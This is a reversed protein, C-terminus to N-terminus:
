FYILTYQVVSQMFLIMCSNSQSPDWMLSMFSHPRVFLFSSACLPILVCMFSYPRVNLFSSACLPIFICMFFHPRAFLFSSACLPILSRLSSNPRMNLSHPRVHLNLSTCKPLLICISFHPRGFLVCQSSVYKLRVLTTM